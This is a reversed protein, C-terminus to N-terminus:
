SISDLLVDFSNNVMILHSKDQTTSQNLIWLDIFMTCWMLLLFSGYSGRLLYLFLMQCFEADKISLIRLLTPISCVYRLIMFAIYSFGVVLTM